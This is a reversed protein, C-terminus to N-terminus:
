QHQRHADFWLGMSMRPGLILSSMESMVGSSLSPSWGPQFCTHYCSHISCPLSHCVSWSFAAWAQDDLAECAVTLLWTKM